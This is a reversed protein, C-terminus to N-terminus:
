GSVFQDVSILQDTVLRLLLTGAQQRSQECKEIVHNIIATVCGAGLREVGALEQYCSM